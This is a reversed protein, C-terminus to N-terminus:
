RAGESPGAQPAPPLPPASQEAREAEIRTRQAAGVELRHLHKLHLGCAILVLALGIHGILYAWTDTWFTRSEGGWSWGISCGMFDPVHFPSWPFAGDQRHNRVNEAVFSGFLAVMGLALLVGLGIFVWAAIIKIM